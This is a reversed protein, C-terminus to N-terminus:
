ECEYNEEIEKLKNLEEKGYDCCTLTHSHIERTPKSVQM